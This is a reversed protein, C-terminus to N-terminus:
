SVTLSGGLKDKLKALVDEDDAQIIWKPGALYSTKSFGYVAKALGLNQDTDFVSLALSESCKIFDEGNKDDHKVADGPCSVESAIVADRLKTANEYTADKQVGGCGALALVLVPAWLFRKM